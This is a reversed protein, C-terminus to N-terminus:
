KYNDFMNSDESLAGEIEEFPIEQFPLTTDVRKLATHPQVM